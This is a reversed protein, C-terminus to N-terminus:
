RPKPNRELLAGLLIVFGLIRLAYILSTPESPTVNAAALVQNLALLAFALTFARLLADGKRRWLTFFLGATVLYGCTIVGSVFDIMKERRRDATRLDDRRAGAVGGRAALAAFGDGARGPGPVAPHQQAHPVPLVLRELVAAPPRKARLSSFSAGHVRRLDGSGARLACSQVDVDLTCFTLEQGRHRGPDGPLRDRAACLDPEVAREGRHARVGAGPQPRLPRLRDRLRSFPAGCDQALLAPLLGGRGPLRPHGRRFPIRDDSSRSSSSATCCSCYAWPRRPLGGPGCTSTRSCRWISSCCCPTSASFYSACRAGCSCACGARRM